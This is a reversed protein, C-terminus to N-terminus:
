FYASKGEAGVAANSVSAAADGSFFSKVALEQFSSRVANGSTGSSAGPVPKDLPVSRVIPQTRRTAVAAAAAAGPSTSRAQSSSAPSPETKALSATSGRGHPDTLGATESSGAREQSGHAPSPSASTSPMAPSPFLAPGRSESFRMADVSGGFSGCPMTPRYSGTAAPASTPSGAMSRYNTQSMVHTNAGFESMLDGSLGASLRLGDDLTSAGGATTAPPIGARYGGSLVGWHRGGISTSQQLRLLAQQTQKVEVVLQERAANTKELQERLDNNKRLLEQVRENTSAVEDKQRRLTGEREQLLAEQSRLQDAAIRYRDRASKITQLQNAIIHHAKELSKEMERIRDAQQTSQEALIRIYADQKENHAELASVKEERSQLATSSGRLREALTVYNLENESMAKTAEAKFNALEDNMERLTELEKAQLGCTDQASRLRSQLTATTTELETVRARLTHLADDKEATTDRLQQAKEDLARAHTELKKEYSDRLANTEKSHQDRLRNLAALQGKEADTASFRMEEEKRRLTEHLDSNESRLSDVEAQLQQTTSACAAESSHFAREFFQFREALYRKLGADGQRLLLLSIHEVTKFATAELVRLTGRSGDASAHLVFSLEYPSAGEAIDRLLNVLYRPFGNFDVLLELRQKFAGYDDELLELEYLFFPDAPDTLRILVLRTVNNPGGRGTRIYLGLPRRQAEQGPLTASVPVVVELLAQSADTLARSQPQHQQSQTADSVAAARMSPQPSARSGERLSASRQQANSLELTDQRNAYAAFAGSRGQATAATAGGATTEDSAFYDPLPRRTYSPPHRHATVPAPQPSGYVTSSSGDETSMMSSNHINSHIM